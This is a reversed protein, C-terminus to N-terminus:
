GIALEPEVEVPAAARAHVQAVGRAPHPPVKVPAAAEVPTFDQM